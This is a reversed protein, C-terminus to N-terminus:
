RNAIAGFCSLQKSERVEQHPPFSPMAVSQCNWLDGPFGIRSPFQAAHVPIDPNVAVPQRASANAPQAEAGGGVGL